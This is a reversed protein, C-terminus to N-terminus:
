ASGHIRSIARSRRVAEGVGLLPIQGHLMLESSPIIYRRRVHSRFTGAQQRIYSGNIDEIRLVKSHPGLEVVKKRTIRRDIAYWCREWTKGCRHCSAIGRHRLGQQREGRVADEEVSQVLVSSTRGIVREWQLSLM